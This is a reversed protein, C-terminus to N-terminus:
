RLYIFTQASYRNQSTGSKSDFRFDELLWEVHVFGHAANHYVM